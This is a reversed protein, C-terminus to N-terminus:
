NFGFGKRKLLDFADVTGHKSFPIRLVGVIPAQLAVSGNFEYDLRRAEVVRRMAHELADPRVTLAVKATTIQSPEIRIESAHDGEAVTAGAIVATYAVHVVNLPYGNPNDVALTLVFAWPEKPDSRPDSTLVVGAVRVTPPRFAEKILSRCSTAAISLAIVALLPLFRNVIRM